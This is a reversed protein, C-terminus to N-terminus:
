ISRGRDILQFCATAWGMRLNVRAVEYLAMLGYGKDKLFSKIEGFSCQGEYLSVFNVEVLLTKVTKNSLTVSAGRLVELDFGQTDVKLLDIHTLRRKKVWLDLTTIPVSVHCRTGEKSFPSEDSRDLALM